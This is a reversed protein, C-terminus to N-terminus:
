SSHRQSLLNAAFQAERRSELSPLELVQYYPPDF